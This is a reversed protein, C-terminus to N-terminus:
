FLNLPMLLFCMWDIVWTQLWSTPQWATLDWTFIFLPSSGTLSSGRCAYPSFHFVWYNLTLPVYERLCSLLILIEWKHLLLSWRGQIQKNYSSVLGSPCPTWLRNYTPGPRQRMRGVVDQHFRTQRFKRKWGEHVFMFASWLQAIGQIRPMEM